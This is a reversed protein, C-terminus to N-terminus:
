VGCRCCQQVATGENLVLAAFYVFWAFGFSSPALMGGTVCAHCCSDLRTVHRCRVDYQM